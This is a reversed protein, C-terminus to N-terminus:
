ASEGENDQDAEKIQQCYCPAQEVSGNPLTRTITKTDNCFGCTEQGDSM